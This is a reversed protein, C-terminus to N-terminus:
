ADTENGVAPHRGLSALWEEIQRFHDEWRPPQYNAIRGLQRVREGGDGTFSEVASQWAVADHADLYTPIDSVIEKYVPLDSAIVPTGLSLAEMVPLGFGEVFSPMLLARSGAMWRTLDEDSSGNIEYVHQQSPGRHDLRKFAENAEWGRGGVVLLKPSREGLVKALRAWVDFLLLHNKRAEITGVTIFYPHDDAPEGPRTPVRDVGLWATVSPAIEIGRASAFRRLDRGTADSNVIIGSASVLANRMRREHKAAEGPRCYQPHTLPILDHILHVARLGNGAIWRVLSDEDLGTHGVNLYITRPTPSSRGASVLAPALIRALDIKGTSAAGLLVARLRDSWTPSLVFIRGRRQVVLRSRPGFRKLYALCVRDIGTAPRGRWARWVLRSVDILYDREADSSL